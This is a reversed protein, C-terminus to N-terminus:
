LDENDASAAAEIARRARNKSSRLGYIRACMSTVVDVFDQVLDLKQEGSEVIVLQRGQAVLAAEIYEVGFRALRDRHEVVISRVTSDSLLRLLHKRRGNLGSGVECVVEVNEWGKATSFSRLRDLQKALDAKQDSSSVRAYLAVRGDKMPEDVVVMIRGTITKETKVPMLGAYYWRQATKFCIGQQKAWLSLKLRM